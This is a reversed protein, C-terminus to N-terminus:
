GASAGQYGTPRLVACATTGTAILKSTQEAHLRAETTAHRTGAHVVTGTAIVGGTSRLM